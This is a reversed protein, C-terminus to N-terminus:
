TSAGHPAADNPSPAENMTNTSNPTSAKRAAARDELRALGWATAVLLGASIAIIVLGEVTHFFGEAWQRGFAMLIFGSCVVRICNAFVAIPIALLGLAWRFRPGRGSLHGIVVGLALIAFLQRLGSCAEAVAMTYGPLYIYYGEQYVPVGCASLLFTSVHSVLQQMRIAFPQYWPLPLPAMFILFLIPFNYSRSARTGGWMLVLGRLVTILSLVDLFLNYFFWMAVHFILGGSLLALGHIVQKREVIIAHQAGADRWAMWAFLLSLVPVLYGHSYNADYDWVAAVEPFLPWYIALVLL